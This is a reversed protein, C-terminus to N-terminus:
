TTSPASRPPAFGPCGWCRSSPRSCRSCWCIWITATGQYLAHACAPLCACANVNICPSRAPLVRVVRPATKGKQLRNGKGNVIRTTITQDFFLLVSVMLAPGAAAWRAWVPLAGLDVLWRRGSTPELVVPVALRPLPLQPWRRQTAWAVGCGCAVGLTPAFDALLDRLRKPRLASARLQFLAAAVGFTVVAVHLALLAAAPDASPDQLPGALGKCAEYIFIFSILNAFIEDTFRSHPLQPRPRVM